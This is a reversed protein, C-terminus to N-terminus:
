ENSNIIDDSIVHKYAALRADKSWSGKVVIDCSALRAVSLETTTSSYLSRPITGQTVPTNMGDNIVFRVRLGSVRDEDLTVPEARCADGGRAAKQPHPVILFQVPRVPPCKLPYADSSRVDSNITDNTVILLIM